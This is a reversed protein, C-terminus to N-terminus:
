KRKSKEIIVVADGVDALRKVSFRTYGPRDDTVDLSTGTFREPEGRVTVSLGQVRPQVVVYWFNDPTNSFNNRLGRKLDGPSKKRIADLLHEAAERAEGRLETRVLALYERDGPGLDGQTPIGEEKFSADSPDAEIIILRSSTGLNLLTASEAQLSISKEERDVEVAGVLLVNNRGKASKPPGLMQLEHPPATTLWVGNFMETVEEFVIRM